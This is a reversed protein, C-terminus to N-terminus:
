LFDIVSVHYTWLGDPSTFRHRKFRELEATERVSRSHGRACATFEGVETNIMVKSEIGLLISYDMINKSALFETDRKIAQNVRTIDFQSMKIEQVHHQNSVFNEDKLTSTHKTFGKVCRSFTSGKLDYIRTIDQSDDFRLTNGMLILHVEEYDQMAVSYVGYIRSLLSQPNKKLHKHLSPLIKVLLNLETGTMTKVIFRRDHSFFFFSGSAGAAEGTKFIQDRNKRPHLSKLIQEFNIKDMARMRQFISTAHATIKAGPLVFDGSEAKKQSSM